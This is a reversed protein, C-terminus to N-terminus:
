QFAGQESPNSIQNRMGQRKMLIRAETQDAAVTSAAQPTNRSLKLARSLKRDASSMYADIQGKNESPLLVRYGTRTGTLYKGQGLLVNRCYDIAALEVMALRDFEAKPAVEPMQIDLLQHVLEGPIVSGFELLGREQLGQLLDRHADRKSM